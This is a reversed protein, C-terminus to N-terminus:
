KVNACLAFANVSWSANTPEEEFASVLVNGPVTNEDSPAIQDIVVDTLGNPDTGTVGGVHQGGGGIVRKGPPCSANASKPSNSNIASSAFVRELGSIGPAGQPGRRGRPGAPLQGAKFDKTLLSRNQVDKSRVDNNRIDKSRVSDNEIERSGISGTAVAYSTGGLAIFVALTAMVSAYSLHSRVQRM